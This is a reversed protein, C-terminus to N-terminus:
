WLDDRQKQRSNKALRFWFLAVVPVECLRRMPIVEVRGTQVCMAEASGIILSCGWIEVQMLLPVKM